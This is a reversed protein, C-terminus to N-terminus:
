PAALATRFLVANAAAVIKGAHGADSLYKTFPRDHDNKM